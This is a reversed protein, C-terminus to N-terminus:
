ASLGSQQKAPVTREALRECSHVSAIIFHKAHNVNEKCLENDNGNSICHVVKM